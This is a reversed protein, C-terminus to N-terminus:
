RRVQLRWYLPRSISRTGIPTPPAVIKLSLATVPEGNEDLQPLGDDDFKLTAVMDKETPIPDLELGTDPSIASVIAKLDSPNSISGMREIASFQGLICIIWRDPIGPQRLLALEGYRGILGEWVQRSQAIPFQPRSQPIV